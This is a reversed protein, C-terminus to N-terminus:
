SCNARSLNDVAPDLISDLIGRFVKAENETIGSGDFGMAMEVMNRGAEIM